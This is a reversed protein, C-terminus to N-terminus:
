RKEVMCRLTVFGGAMADRTAGEGNDYLLAQLDAAFALEAEVPNNPYEGEPLNFEVTIRM